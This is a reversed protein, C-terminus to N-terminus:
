YAVRSEKIRIRTMRMIWLKMMKVVAMTRRSRRIMLMIIMVMKGGAIMIAIMRLKMTSLKMRM